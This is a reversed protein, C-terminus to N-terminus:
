PGVVGPAHVMVQARAAAAVDAAAQAALFGNGRCWAITRTLGEDLSVRPEFGLVTRARTIDPVRRPTDEYSQGYYDQYPVLVIESRSGTIAKIRRALELITIEVPNGINFVHERPANVSGALLVGAVTDEVYTFCRTQRGDGHVTLPEGNLAQKIFRAVVTGYGNSHIRPGYANFFRLAVVPLGKAAFAFAFHEDIAKASSYSWRNITTSGLIRDDDERLPAKTSKGYVESSSAIVVKKQHRAAATLVNETGAVNTIISGLPDNVIYSVGVAAALHYVIDSSAVMDAVLPRNLITDEVLTFRPHELHNAVNYREGTSLNDLVTVEDGRAMLADVLHSGIFGAGGTVLARM